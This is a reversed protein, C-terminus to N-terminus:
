ASYTKDLFVPVLLSILWLSSYEGFGIGICTSSAMGSSGSVIKAHRVAFFAEKWCDALTKSPM